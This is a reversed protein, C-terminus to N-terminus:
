TRWIEWAEKAESCTNILKSLNEDVGNFIKNLEKSNGLAECEEYDTWVVEPKLSTTGDESTIMLHKCGNFMVKWAKNGLSKLFTVVVAKWYDYNM